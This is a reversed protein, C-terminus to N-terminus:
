VRVTTAGPLLFSFHSDRPPSMILYVKDINYWQETTAFQVHFARLPPEVGIIWCWLELVYAIALLLTKPLVIVKQNGEDGMEKWVMRSVDWYPLPTGNTIFFIQGAVLDARESCLCDAALVHADAVNGVYAFDVLNTNDGMQMANRGRKYADAMRWM